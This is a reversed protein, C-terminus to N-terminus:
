GYNMERIIKGEMIQAYDVARSELESVTAWRDWVGVAGIVSGKRFWIGVISSYSYESTITFAFSEDGVTQKVTLIEVNESSSIVQERHIFASHAGDTSSFVLVYQTM